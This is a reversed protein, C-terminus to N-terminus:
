YVYGKRGIAESSVKGGVIRSQNSCRYLRVTTELAAVLLGRRGGLSTRNRPISFGPIHNLYDFSQELADWVVSYYFFDGNKTTFGRRLAGLNQELSVNSSPFDLHASFLERPKTVSRPQVNVLREDDSFGEFTHEIELHGHGNHVHFFVPRIEGDPWVGFGAVHIGACEGDPLPQDGCARNLVAAIETALSRLDSYSGNAIRRELWEDFRGRCIRGVFGWYGVVANVRPAKLVKRWGQQDVEVIRGKGDIKTIASDAAMVIGAESCETLLLTM